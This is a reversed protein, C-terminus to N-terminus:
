KGERDKFKSNVMFIVLARATSATAAATLADETASVFALRRARPKGGLAGRLRAVGAARINQDFNRGDLISSQNNENPPAPALRPEGEPLGDGGPWHEVPDCCQQSEVSIALPGLEDPIRSSRPSSMAESM